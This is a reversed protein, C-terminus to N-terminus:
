RELSGPEALAARAEDGSHGTIQLLDVMLSRLLAIETQMQWSSFAQPDLRAAIRLFPRRARIPDENSGLIGALLRTADAVERLTGALAMAEQSDFAVSAAHRTLVRTNRMARDCLMGARDLRAMEEDHRLWSPTFRTAAQADRVMEQWEDIVAQSGRAQVLADGVTSNDREDLGKAVAELTQAVELLSARALSRVQKRVDVPLLAAVILAVSGGVLADLWRDLGGADGLMYWPLAVVVVSQVGAQIALVQGADLLRAALVALVLVVGIQVPGSGFLSSFVEGFAVGIAVGFALEAVKRPRRDHSFGLSVWAAIAAFMPFRHNLGHLAIAYAIAAAGAGTLIAWLDSRTRRLGRRARSRAAVRVERFTPREVSPVRPATPRGPRSGGRRRRM